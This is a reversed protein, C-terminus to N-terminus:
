SRFNARFARLTGLIGIQDEAPLIRKRVENEVIFMVAVLPLTLLNAFVSWTGIPALLFLLISVIAMVFFFTTWAVTVQRTYRVLAPTMQEHVLRAVATVLPEYRGTLSRGFMLGLVLNIGVHQALYLWHVWTGAKDMGLVYHSVVAYAVFLMGALLGTLLENRGMSM